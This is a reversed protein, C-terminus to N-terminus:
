NWYDALVLRGLGADVAGVPEPPLGYIERLQRVGLYQPHHVEIIDAYHLSTAGRKVHLEYAHAALPGPSDLHMLRALEHEADPLGIEAIRTTHKSLTWGDARFQSGISAGGVISAHTAAIAGSESDRFLVLAYTRCVQTGNELSYLNSRRLRENQELVTIGYSGFQARIRDSNLVGSPTSCAGVWLALLILAAPRKLMAM